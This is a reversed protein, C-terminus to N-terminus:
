GSRRAHSAVIESYFHILQPVVVNPHYRKRFVEVLRISAALVRDPNDLLAETVRAMARPDAVPVVCEPDVDRLLEAVGGVDTAVTIRGRAAANLMSLPLGEFLSSLLFICHKSIISDIEDAACFPGAFTLRGSVGLARALEVMRQMEPTEGYITLRVDDRHSLFAVCAVMFEPGKEVRLRSISGLSALFHLDERSLPRVCEERVSVVHPITEIRGPYGFTERVGIAVRQCRAIVANLDQFLTFTAPDYWTCRPSAESTETGVCPWDLNRYMQLWSIMLRGMPIAHMLDPRCSRLDAHLRHCFNQEGEDADAVFLPVGASILQRQWYPHVPQERPYVAVMVSHGWRKLAVATGVLSAETGALMGLYDTLFVIRLSKM